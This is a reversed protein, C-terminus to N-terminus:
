YNLVHAPLGDTSIYPTQDGEGTAPDYRYIGDGNETSLGYFIKDEYTIITSGAGTWANTVPLNLKTASKDYLNLMYSQFTKDKIRDPPNSNLSPFNLSTYLKGDKTYHETMFGATTGNGMDLNELGTVSFYYDPDFSDQGNKIRLIGSNLGYYGFGAPNNVYIDRNEDMFIGLNASPRGSSSTRNDETHSLITDTAVDIVVVSAKGRPMVTQLDSVQLMAMYLKGDRIIGSTPEPNTDNGDLNGNADMAYASLDIEKTKTMASPNFVLLKGVSTLALYAKTDSAFVISTPMSAEGTNIEVSKEFVGDKKIYKTLKSIMPDSVFIDDKYVMVSTGSISTEIGNSNTSNHATDAKIANIFGTDNDKRTVVIVDSDEEAVEGGISSDSGCGVLMLAGLLSLAFRNTELKM